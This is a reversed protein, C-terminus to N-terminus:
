EHIVIYTITIGNNRAGMGGPPIAVITPQAHYTTPAAYNPQDLYAFTQM